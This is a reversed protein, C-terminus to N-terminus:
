GAARRVRRRRTVAAITLVDEALFLPWGRRDHKAPALHCRQGRDDVYGRKRWQRITGLGVNALEAAQATSLLDDAEVTVEHEVLWWGEGAAVAAEDVQDALPRGVARLHQRYAQAIRRARQLDTDGLLAAYPRPM